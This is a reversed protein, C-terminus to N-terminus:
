SFWITWTRPKEKKKEKSKSLVNILTPSLSVLSLKCCFFSCSLRPSTHPKEFQQLGELFKGVYKNSFVRHILPGVWNLSENNLTWNYNLMRGLGAIKLRKWRTACMFCNSFNQPMDFFIKASRVFFYCYNKNM